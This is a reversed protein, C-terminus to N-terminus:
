RRFGGPSSHCLAEPQADALSLVKGSLNQFSHRQPLHPRCLSQSQATAARQQGEPPLGAGCAEWTLCQRLDRLSRGHPGTGAGLHPGLWCVELVQVTPLPELKHIQLPPPM